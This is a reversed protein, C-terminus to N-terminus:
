EILFQFLLHLGVQSPLFGVYPDRVDARRSGASGKSRASSKSGASGQQSGASCKFRVSGKSGASRKFGARSKSGASGESRVICKTGASRESGKSGSSGRRSGSSGKFGSSGRRSGASGESKASGKYGASGRRGRHHSLPYSDPHSSVPLLPLDSKKSLTPFPKTRYRVKGGDVTAKRAVSSDPKTCM